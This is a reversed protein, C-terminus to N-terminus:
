ETVDSKKEDDLLLGGFCEEFKKKYTPFTKIAEKALKESYKMANKQQGCVHQVVMASGALAFALNKSSLKSEKKGNRVYKYILEQLNPVYDKFLTSWAIKQNPRGKRKVVIQKKDVDIVVGGALSGKIFTYGKMNNVMANHMTEMMIIKETEDKIQLEGEVTEFSTGLQRLQRKAGEWDLLRISGMQIISNFKEKAAAREEKVKAAHREAALRKREADAREAARKKAEREARAAEERLRRITTELSKKGRSNITKVSKHVTEVDPSSRLTSLQSVIANNADSLKQVNEKTGNNQIKRAADIKVNISEVEKGIRIAAALSSYARNWLERLETVSSPIESSKDATAAISAVIDAAANKAIEKAVKQVTNTAEWAAKEKLYDQGAPSNPDTEDGKPPRFGKGRPFRKAVSKKIANLQAPNVFSKIDLAALTSTLVACENTLLIAKGLEASAEPKILMVVSADYRKSLVKKLESSYKECSKAAEKADAEIKAAFTKLAASSKDVSEMAKDYQATLEALELRKQEKEYSARYWVLGGIVSGIVLILLGVFGFVKGAAGKEEEEPENEALNKVPPLDDENKQATKKKLSLKKGTSVKKLKLKPGSASVAAKAEGQTSDLGSTLVKKFEDLLAEFTPFRNAPDRDLMRMVLNDIQPSLGPRVESPKRLAGEEFRKKVVATADDGEFPATGCLAHYMTGGLSYMDARYDVPEKLVKEPAIYYPTGWIEETDKQM